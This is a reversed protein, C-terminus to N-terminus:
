DSMKWDIAYNNNYNVVYVFLIHEITNKGLKGNKSIWQLELQM